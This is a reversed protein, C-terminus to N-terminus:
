LIIRQEKLEDFCDMLKNLFKNVYSIKKDKITRIEQIEYLYLGMNDQKTTKWILEYENNPSIVIKQPINNQLDLFTLSFSTVKTQKLCNKITEKFDEMNQDCFVFDLKKQADLAINKREIKAM